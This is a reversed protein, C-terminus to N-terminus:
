DAVMWFGDHHHMNSDINATDQMAIRQDAIGRYHEMTNGKSVHLLKFSVKAIGDRNPLGADRLDLLPHSAVTVNGGGM